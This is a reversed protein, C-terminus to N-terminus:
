PDGMITSDSTSRVAALGLSLDQQHLLEEFLPYLAQPPVMQLRNERRYLVSLPEQQPPIQPFGGHHRRLVEKRNCGM